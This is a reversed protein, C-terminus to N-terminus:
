RSRGVSWLGRMSSIMLVLMCPFSYLLAGELTTIELKGLQHQLLVQRVTFHSKHLNVSATADSLVGAQIGSRGAIIWVEGPRLMSEPQIDVIDVFDQHGPKLYSNGLGSTFDLQVLAWDSYQPDSHQLSRHHPTTVKQFFSHADHHKGLGLAM